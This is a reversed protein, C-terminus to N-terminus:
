WVAGLTVGVSFGNEVPYWTVPIDLIVPGFSFGFGGMLKPNFVTPRMKGGGELSLNGPDTTTVPTSYGYSSVESVRIDGDAGLTLNSSGFGIDVGAGLTLNLVWLLRLSTSVELPITFTKTSLDLVLRPDVALNYNVGGEIFSESYSDISAAYNLDTSQYLFGTGLNLGRWKVLGAAFSKEKFLQYNGVVGISFTKFGLDDIANNLKFYGFRLGLYLDELLFASTNISIQGSIAQVDLGIKLDHEENLTDTLGDLEDMIEFPSGPLKVGVMPGITFAFLKYGAYGRQSAGQGAYISADAFGRILKEPKSDIDNIEDDVDQIFKTWEGAIAADLNIDGTKPPTGDIRLKQAFLPGAALALICVLLLSKQMKMM